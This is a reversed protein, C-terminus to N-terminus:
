NHFFVCPRWATRIEVGWQEWSIPLSILDIKMARFEVPRGCIGPARVEGVAAGLAFGDPGPKPLNLPLLDLWALEKAAPQEQALTAADVSAPKTAEENPKRASPGQRDANENWMM